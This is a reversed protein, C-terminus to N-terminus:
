VVKPRAEATLTSRQRAVKHQYMSYQYLFAPVHVMQQCQASMHEAHMCHGCCRGCRQKPVRQRLQIHGAPAAAVDAAAAHQACIGKVAAAGMCTHLGAASHCQWIKQDCSRAVGRM